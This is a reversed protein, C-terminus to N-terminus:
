TGTDSSSPHSAKQRALDHIGAILDKLRQTRRAGIEPDEPPKTEAQQLKYDFGNARREGEPATMLQEAHQKYLKAVSMAYEIRKSFPLPHGPEDGPPVWDPDLAAQFATRQLEPLESWASRHRQIIGVRLDAAGAVAAAYGEDEGAHNIGHNVGAHNFEGALKATTAVDVDTQVDSLGQDARVWGRKKAQKHVAQASVEYRRGIETLSAGEEYAARIIQWEAEPLGRHAM